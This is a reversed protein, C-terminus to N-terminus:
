KSQFVALNDLRCGNCTKGHSDGQSALPGHASVALLPHLLMKLSTGWAASLRRCRTQCCGAMTAGPPPRHRARPLFHIRSSPDSRALGADEVPTPPAAVVVIAYAVQMPLAALQMPM